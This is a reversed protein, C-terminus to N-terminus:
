GERLEKLFSGVESSLGDKETQLRTSLGYLEDALWGTNEAAKSVDGIRQSVDAVNDRAEAVHATINNTASAQEELADAIGLSIDHIRDITNTIHSIATVAEATQEQVGSIQTSIEETAKATQNALNKVESAVVAFGKGAEGARAAEITANLALLNTQDAIDNILQIIEGVREAAGALSEIRQNAVDVESTAEKVADTAKSVRETIAGISGILQEGATSVGQMNSSVVATADGVSASESKAQNANAALAKSNIQVKDVSEALSIVISEVRQELSNAMDNRARRRDERAAQQSKEQEQHLKENEQLNARFVTLAEVMDGIEDRSAKPLEVDLNGDALSTMGEHLARLRGIIRKGVYLWSIAIALAVSFIALVVMLMQGRSVSQDSEITAGDVQTQMTQSLRDAESSLAKALSRSKALANASTKEATIAAAVAAFFGGKEVTDTIVGVDGQLAKVKDSPLLRKAWVTLRKASGAYREEVKKLADVTPSKAAEMLLAVSANAQARVNLLNRYQGLFKKAEEPSATTGVVEDGEIALLIAANGEVAMSSLRSNIASQGQLSAQLAAEVSKRNELRAAVARDLEVLAKGMLGIIQKLRKANNGRSNFAEVSEGLEKLELDLKSKVAKLEDASEATMMAPAAAALGGIKESLRLAETIAPVSEHIIQHQKGKVVSFSFGGVTATVVTMAAVILFSLYLRTSISSKKSGPRGPESNESTSLEGATVPNQNESTM